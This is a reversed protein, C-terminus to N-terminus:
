CIQDKVQGKERKSYKQMRDSTCRRRYHRWETALNVKSKGKSGRAFRIAMCLEFLRDASKDNSGDLIPQGTILDLIEHEHFSIDLSGDFLHNVQNYNSITLALAAADEDPLNNINKLQNHLEGLKTNKIPKTQGNKNMLKQLHSMLTEFSLIVQEISHQSQTFKM